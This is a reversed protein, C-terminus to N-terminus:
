VRRSGRTLVFIKYEMSIRPLFNFKRSCWARFAQVAPGYGHGHWFDRRLVRKEVDDMRKKYYNNAFSTVIGMGTLDFRNNTFLVPINRITKEKTFSASHCHLGICRDDSHAIQHAITGGDSHCSIIYPDEPFIGNYKSLAFDVDDKKWNAKIPSVYDGDYFKDIRWEKLNFPNFGSLLLLKPKVM